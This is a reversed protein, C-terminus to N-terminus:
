FYWYRKEEQHLFFFLDTFNCQLITAASTLVVLNDRCQGTPGKEKKNLYSGIEQHISCWAHNGMWIRVVLLIYFRPLLQFSGAVLVILSVSVERARM